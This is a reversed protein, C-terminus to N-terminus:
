FREPHGPQGREGHQEWEEPPSIESLTPYNSELVTGVLSGVAMFPPSLPYCLFDSLESIMLAKRNSTATGETSRTQCLGLSKRQRDRNRSYPERSGPATAAEDRRLIDGWKFSGGTFSVEKRHQGRRSPTLPTLLWLKGLGPPCEGSTPSPPPERWGKEQWGSTNGRSEKM